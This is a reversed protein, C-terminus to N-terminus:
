EASRVRPTLKKKYDKLRMSYFQQLEVEMEKIDRKLVERKALNKATAFEYQGYLSLLEHFQPAFGPEKTTDSVTFYTMKRKFYVKLGNTYSYNPKPDLLVSNGIIDYRYPRGTNTTLNQLYTYAEPDFADINYLPYFQGAEDAVLVKVVELFTSDFQYDQQNTVLNTTAIPLTTNNTDDFQWRNDAQLILTTIRDLGKNVNRTVDAIPYSTANQNLKFYIDQVIGQTGSNYQM